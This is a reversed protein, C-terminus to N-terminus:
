ESDMSQAQFIRLLNQVSEAHFSDSKQLKKQLSKATKKQLRTTMKTTSKTTNKYNNKYDQLQKQSSKVSLWMNRCSEQPNKAM